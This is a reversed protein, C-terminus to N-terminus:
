EIVEDARALLTPPVKLGLNKATRLNIALVLSTPQEVPIDAPKAGRLIKDVMDASRRFLDVYDAGYFALGGADVHLRNTHMTPLQAALALEAVRHRHIGIIPHSSVYLADVNNKITEFAPAIDDSRRILFKTVEIGLTRAIKVIESIEFNPRGYLIGLRRLSPVLERLIEIRKGASSGLQLSMGTMNGGPRALSEVVGAAVPNTSIAFVVPITSNARRIAGIGPGATLIVDVKLRVFEAAIEALRERRMEAWRYEIAFNRGEIWDLERLRQLFAKKFSPPMRGLGEELGPMFYGITPLRGPRQARAAFPWLSLSGALGAIFERRRM